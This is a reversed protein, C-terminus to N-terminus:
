ADQNDNELDELVEELMLEVDPSICVNTIYYYIGMFFAIFFCVMFVGFATIPVVENSICNLILVYTGWALILIITLIWMLRNGIKYIKLAKRLRRAYETVPMSTSNGKRVVLYMYISIVLIGLSWLLFIGLELKWYFYAALLTFMVIRGILKRQLESIHKKTAESVLREDVISENNSMKKLQEKIRVLKVSVNKTSIGIIQGIEEYSMNELWLLIIARDVVGLKNIRSYLQQIQRTDDDTDTFLNIDMSLPMTEVSRKKKREATLCTNLSVRWIWTKIDCQGKFSDFGQWLNILTEQFLDNVEDQDKSFLYCVTFITNKHAKVINAFETEEKKM